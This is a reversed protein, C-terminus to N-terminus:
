KEDELKWDRVKEWKCEACCKMCDNCLEKVCDRLMTMLRDNQERVASLEISMCKMDNQCQLMSRKVEKLEEIRAEVMRLLEQQQREIDTMDRVGKM